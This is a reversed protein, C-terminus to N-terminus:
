VDSVEPIEGLDLPEEGLERLTIIVDHNEEDIKIDRIEDHIYLNSIYEVVDEDDRLRKFIPNGNKLDMVFSTNKRNEVSEIICEDFPPMIKTAPNGNHVIRIAMINVLSFNEGLVNL